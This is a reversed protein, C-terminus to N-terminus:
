GEIPSGGIDVSTVSEAYEYGLSAFNLVEKATLGFPELVVSNLGTPYNEIGHKQQWLAWIRDIMCHHSYFIPDYAAYTPDAMSGGVFVHIQDHITELLDNFIEFSTVKNILYEVIEALTARGDGNVDAEPFTFVPLQPDPDRFTQEDVPTPVQPPSLKIESNYIPNKQGDLNPQSFAQPIGTEITWDWWPIAVEPNLDQLSQELRHLYARHWPLFMRASLNSLRSFQHHWCWRDPSGHLGAFHYYGRNDHIKKSRGISDIYDSMHQSSQESVRLRYNMNGAM